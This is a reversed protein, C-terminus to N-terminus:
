NFGSVAQLIANILGVSGHNQTMLEGLVIDVARIQVKSPSTSLNEYGKCRSLFPLLYVLMYEPSLQYIPFSSSSHDSQYAFM